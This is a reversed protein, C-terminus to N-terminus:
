RLQWIGPFPRKNFICDLLSLSYAFTKPIFTDPASEDIGNQNMNAENSIEDQNNIEQTTKQAPISAIKNFSTSQLTTHPLLLSTPSAPHESNYPILKLSFTYHLHCEKRETDSKSFNVVSYSDFAYTLNNTAFIEQFSQVSAPLTLLNDGFNLHTSALSSFSFFDFTTLM